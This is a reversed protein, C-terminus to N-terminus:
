AHPRLAFYWGANVTAATPSKAGGLTFDIELYLVYFM